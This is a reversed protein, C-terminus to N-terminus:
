WGPHIVVFPILHSDQHLYPIVPSLEKLRRLMMDRHKRTAITITNDSKIEKELFEIFSDRSGNFSFEKIDEGDFEEKTYRKDAYYDELKRVMKTIIGNLKIANDNNVIWKKDNWQDSTVYIGAHFYRKVGDAYFYIDM